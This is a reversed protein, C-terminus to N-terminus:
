GSNKEELLRAVLNVMSTVRLTRPLADAALGEPLEGAPVEPMAARLEALAEPTFKGDVTFPKGGLKEKARKEIDRPSIKVNFKKELHFTLDLLDLSDADLDAILRQEARISDAPADLVAALCECVGQFIDAHTM